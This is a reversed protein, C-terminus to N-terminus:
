PVGGIKLFSIDTKLGSDIIGPAASHENNDSGAGANQEVPGHCTAEPDM